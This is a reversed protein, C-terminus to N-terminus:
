LLVDHICALEDNSCYMMFVHLAAHRSNDRIADKKREFHCCIELVNILTQLNM